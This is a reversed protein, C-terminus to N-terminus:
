LLAITTPNGPSIGLAVWGNTKMHLEFTIEQKNQDVTWWLDAVGSHIETAYQYTTYPPIPSSVTHVSSIWILSIELAFLFYSWMKTFESSQNYVLYFNGKYVIQSM